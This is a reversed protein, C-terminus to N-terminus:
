QGARGVGAGAKAARMGRAAANREERTLARRKAGAGRTDLYGALYMAGTPSAGANAKVLPFDGARHFRTDGAVREVVLVEHPEVHDLLYPSHTTLVVQVGSESAARLHQFLMALTWPDLGNEIEEIVLL